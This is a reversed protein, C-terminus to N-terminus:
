SRAKRRKVSYVWQPKRAYQLAIDWLPDTRDRLNAALAKVEAPADDTFFDEASPSTLRGHLSYRRGKVGCERQADIDAHATKWTIKRLDDAYDSDSQGRRQKPYKPYLRKTFLEFVIDEYELLAGRRSEAHKYSLVDVWCGKAASVNARVRKVISAETEWDFLRHARM